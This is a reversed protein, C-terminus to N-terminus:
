SRDGAGIPRVAASSERAVTPSCGGKSREGALAQTVLATPVVYINAQGNLVQAADDAHASTRMSAFRLEKGDATLSPTFDMGAANIPPPLRVAASWGDDTRCAAFLNADPSGSRQSWFVALGGDSSLTFDGQIAGDNFPAGLPQPADFGGGNVRARYIALKAPGGKRSSNFYLWGDHLEPGLEEGDSALADLHEPVGFRGDELGVRWIDLSSSPAEGSLPRNSVFYLTRGDPALWPDSDRYRPDTFSAEAAEGWGSGDRRVFWIRSDKFNAASRAFVMAHQGSDTSLNYDNRTGSLWGAGLLRAADAQPSALQREGGLAAGPTQVSVPPKLSAAAPEAPNMPTCAPALVCLAVLVVRRM